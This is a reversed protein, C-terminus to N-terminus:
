YIKWKKYFRRIIRFPLYIGFLVFISFMLLIDPFDTRYYFNDTYTNLSDCEGSYGYSYTGERIMYDQNIYIDVYNTLSSNTFARIYGNNIVKCSSNVYETPLYIKSM